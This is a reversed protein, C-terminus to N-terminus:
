AGAQDEGAPEWRRTGRDGNPRRVEVEVAGGEPREALARRVDEVARIERGNIELLVDGAALGMRQAMTDPLVEIVELGLTEDRGEITGSVDGTGRVHVGLIDTRMPSPRLLVPPVGRGAFPQRLLGRLGPPRQAMGRELRERLEPHAEFLAERSEAEFTRVQEEGDVVERLEVKVGDPGEQLSFSESSSHPGTPPAGTMPPAGPTFLSGGRPPAQLLDDLEGLLRDLDGSLPVAFRERLPSWREETAPRAQRDIERLLLEATWALELDDGQTWGEVTDRVTPSRQAGELVQDYAQRRTSLDDFRLDQAWEAAYEAVSPVRTMPQEQGADQWPTPDVPGAWLLSVFLFTANM